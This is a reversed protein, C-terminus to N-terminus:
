ETFERPSSIFQKVTQVFQQSQSLFPLHAACDLVKIESKASLKDLVPPVMQDDAGYIWLTDITSQAVQERLDSQHLIKLSDLLNSKSVGKSLLRIIEKVILKPKLEMAALQLYFGKLADSHNKEIQNGFQAALDPDVAQKWDDKQVFCPTAAVLVLKDIMQPFDIAIQQAVLGGLSWGLLSFKEGDRSEIKSIIDAAADQLSASFSEGERVGYGPLDVLQIDFEESLMPTIKAFIEGSFGWGHLLVLKQRKM